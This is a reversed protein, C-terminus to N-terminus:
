REMASAYIANFLFRYTGRTQARFQPRFSFLIVRGKGLPVEVLAGRGAIADPGLVWGSLLPNGLPYRAVTAVAAAEEGGAPATAFAPGNVFLAAVDRGFGWGLPHAPDVVIRFLAGPAYYREAPLGALVNTVPLYLQEIALDSAGGLAVLTGGAEVFRRLAAAGAEGIGGSYEPPYDAASNGRLVEEPRQHALVLCDYRDILGGGRLEGDRVQAFPFDYGELIFRTWGEDTANPRYSRYLGLRPRRLARRARPLMSPPVLGLRLSGVEALGVLAGAEAGEVVFTGAEFLEGGVRVDTVTRSLRAGGALLANVARASGNAEAGILGVTAGTGGAPPPPTLIRAPAPRLTESGERTLNAAFPEEIQHTEIGFQLGLTQATIDYPPKPPGGAWLRLDPYRQVELLTKAFPGYPQGLRIVYDGAARRVGGAEFPEAAREIEVGGTQLTHLLEHLTGADRSGEGGAPVVFAYPTAGGHRAVAARGIHAFDRLWERRNRAAHDLLAWTAIREYEVIEAITWEGGPWPLPHNATALRPDFGRAERLREAPMQLPTCIRCSAAESLIRVGGHYHQYARSPSYADFIIGTAVGGKGAAVLEAAMAGGLAGIRGQLIPDVNPDYPDIYPPLFFRAGDTGMQHLDFVIQPRWRNHIREVALRTEVQTFMFWDRNNDHGCYTHYLGPPVSGEYPGGLTEMYWDHVLQWGDPNLSPVLLLIVNDLVSRTREDDGTALAHALSLAMLTSGVETSHISCTLLVVTKGARILAEAEAESTLRPDALRRQIEQYRELDALVGPAAITAMVFPQGETAPGLEDFRVRDSAEGLQRFYGAVEPWSPLKRAEGPVYGLVEEPSRIAARVGDAGQM